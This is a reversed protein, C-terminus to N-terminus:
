TLLLESYGASEYLGLIVVLRCARQTSFVEGYVAGNDGVSREVLDDGLPDFLLGSWTSTSPVSILFPEFSFLSDIGGQSISLLQYSASAPFRVFDDM